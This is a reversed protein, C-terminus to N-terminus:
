ASDATESRTEVERLRRYAMVYYMQVELDDHMMTVDAGGGFQRDSRPM